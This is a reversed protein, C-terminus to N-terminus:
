TSMCLYDKNEESDICNKELSDMNMLKSNLFYDCVWYLFYALFFIALIIRLNRM